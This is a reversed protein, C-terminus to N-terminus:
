EILFNSGPQALSEAAHPRGNSGPPHLWLPRADTAGPSCPGGGRRRPPSVHVTRGPVASGASSQLAARTVFSNGCSHSFAPASLDGGGDSAPRPLVPFVFCKSFLLIELCPVPYILEATVLDKGKQGLGTASPNNGGAHTVCLATGVAVTRVLM